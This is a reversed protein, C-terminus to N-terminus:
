QASKRLAGPIPTRGRLPRELCKTYSRALLLDKAESLIVFLRSPPTMIPRLLSEARENKQATVGIGNGAACRGSDTETRERSTLAM